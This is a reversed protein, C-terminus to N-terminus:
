AVVFEAIPLRNVFLKGSGIRMVFADADAITFGGVFGRKGRDEPIHGVGAELMARPTLRASPLQKGELM